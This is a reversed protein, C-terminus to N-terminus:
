FTYTLGVSAGTSYKNVRADAGGPSNIPASRPGLTCSNPPRDKLINCGWAQPQQGYGYASVSAYAVLGNGFNYGGGISGKLMSNSQGRESPNDTSAKSLYVIGTSASWPGTVYRVGATFDNSTVRYGPSEVGNADKGFFDVNFFNNYRCQGDVFDICVAYAGSWRNHRIGVGVDVNSNIQYRAMLMAMSQGSSGIESDYQADYFVGTFPAHGWSSPPGNRTDQYMFDLQLGDRYYRAWFEVFFPKNKKFSTDGRDYTVELVLDGDYVDFIRSTYRVAETNLGYGAGTSAWTDGGSFDSGFPYDAFSWARTPFAGIRLSGYEDHSIAVNKEYYVGPIDIKGDRWRQSLLGSLKFGGGPLDFKFGLYPQFLTFWGGNAAIEAGPVLADAWPRERNEGPFLQCNGTDTTSNLNNNISDNGCINSARGYEAKVFGNLSFPGFDFASSASCAFLAAAFVSWRGLQRRGRVWSAPTCRMGPEFRRIPDHMTTPNGAFCSLAKLAYGAVTTLTL